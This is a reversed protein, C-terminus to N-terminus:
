GKKLAKATPGTAKAPNCERLLQPPCNATGDGGTAPIVWGGFLKAMDKAHSEIAGKHMEYHVWYGTKKARVIGAEKLIRLHQSVAPQSMQLRQAIANVCQPHEKLLLLMKIRAESSLAGFFRAQDKM